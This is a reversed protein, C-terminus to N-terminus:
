EIVKEAKAGFSELASKVGHHIEMIKDLGVLRLQNKVHENVNALKLVAVNEYCVVHMAVLTGIQLSFISAISALNAVVRVACEDRIVHEVLRLTEATQSLDDTSLDFVVDAGNRQVLM